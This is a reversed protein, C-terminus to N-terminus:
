ELNREILGAISPRQQDHTLYEKLHMTELIKM